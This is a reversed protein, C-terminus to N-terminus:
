LSLVVTKSGQVFVKFIQGDADIQLIHITAREVFDPASAVGLVPSPDAEIKLSPSNFLSDTQYGVLRISNPRRGMALSVAEVALVAVGDRDFMSDKPFFRELRKYIKGWADLNEEIRKGSFFLAAIAGFPLLDTITTFFAPEGAGTGIDAPEFELGYERVLEARYKASEAEDCGHSADPIYVEIGQGSM